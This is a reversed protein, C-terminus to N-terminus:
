VTSSHMAIMVSFCKRWRGISSSPPFTMPITEIPSTTLSVIQACCNMMSCISFYMVPQSESFRRPAGQRVGVAAQWSVPVPDKEKQYEQVCDPKGLPYHLGPEAFERFAGAFWKMVGVLRRLRLQWRQEEGVSTVPFGARRRPRRLVGECNSPM